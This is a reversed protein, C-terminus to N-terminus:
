DLLGQMPNIVIEGADVDVKEIIDPIDPILFEREDSIVIFVNNAPYSVVDKVVGIFDGANTIMRLGVLEFFYHVGKPLPETETVPIKVYKRRLLDAGERSNVNELTLIVNSNQSQVRNVAVAEGQHDEDGLYVHKLSSFRNPDDALVLVKVAGRVGHPKVIQGIIVFDPKQLEASM